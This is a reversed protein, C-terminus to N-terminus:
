DTGLLWSPVHMTPFTEIHTPPPKLDLFAAVQLDQSVRPPFRHSAGDARQGPRSCREKSARTPTHPPLPCAKRCASVWCSVAQPPLPCPVQPQLCPQQLYAFTRGRSVGNRISLPCPCSRWPGPVRARLGWALQRTRCVLRFAPGSDLDPPLRSDGPGEKQFGCGRPAPSFCLCCHGGSSRQAAFRM